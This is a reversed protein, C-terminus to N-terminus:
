RAGGRREKQYNLEVKPTQNEGTLEAALYLSPGVVPFIAPPNGVEPESGGSATRFPGPEPTVKYVPPYYVLVGTRSVPLDAAPLALSARGREAWLDGRAMYVLEIGFAPADEGARGKELPFLLAGEASKGPRVPRGGQSASWLIAGAPLAIKAFNRQNNRVSYRAQVLTKGERSMLIRYQAEDIMATLMAQQAYRAVTVTLAATQPGPRFRFAALSPSQRAAITQGLEAAETGELGSAKRDKIEGAGLVEVAVGGSEREVGLLRLLPIELTGDRALKMEGQVVFKTARDAAELLSVTLEGNKVEWDAVTAGPVQNVTVSDPVRLKVHDAAGQIIELNVEASITSGDEGLGVLQVISGRMRLPLEERHEEIKRRWSFVLPENGRGYALWAGESQDALVGGTVKLDVDARGVALSARTVGSGGTPLTIREEGNAVNVALAVDLELVNRGRTSLVVAGNALSVPKGAMRAERVLFATPIPTKVWGDKLVDVTLRAKGSAIGDKVRLEYEVRSLAAEAPLAAPEPEVPNARGRLATYESVPIVVWGTSRPADQALCALASLFVINRM